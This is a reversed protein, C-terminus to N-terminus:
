LDYLRVNKSIWDQVERAVLVYERSPTKAIEQGPRYANWIKDRLFKPLMMWHRKCGWMAPPVQKDCTPFHCHHDFHRNRRAERVVYSAKAATSM